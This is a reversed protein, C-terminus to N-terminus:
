YREREREFRGRLVLNEFAKPRDEEIVYCLLMMMMIITMMYRDHLQAVQQGTGTERIWFDKWFGAM